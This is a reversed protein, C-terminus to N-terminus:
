QVEPLPVTVYESPGGRLLSPCWVSLYWRGDRQEVRPHHPHSPLLVRESSCLPCTADCTLLYLRVGTSPDCTSLLLTLANANVVCMGNYLERVFVTGHQTHRVSELLRTRRLTHLLHWQRELPLSLLNLM